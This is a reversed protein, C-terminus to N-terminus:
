YKTFILNLVTLLMVHRYIILIKIYIYTNYTSNFTSSWNKIILYLENLYLRKLQEENLKYLEDTFNLNDKKKIDM